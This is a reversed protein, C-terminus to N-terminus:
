WWLVLFVGLMVNVALLLSLFVRRAGAQSLDWERAQAYAQGTETLAFIGFATVVAKMGAPGALGTWLLTRSLLHNAAILTREILLARWPATKDGKGKAQAIRPSLLAPLLAILEAMAAGLAALLSQSWDASWFWIALAFLGLECTASWLGSLPAAAWVPFPPLTSRQVYLDASVKLAVALVWTGAGLLLWHWVTMPLVIDTTPAGTSISRTDEVSPNEPRQQQQNDRFRQRHPEPAM